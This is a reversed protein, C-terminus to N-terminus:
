ALNRDCKESLSVSLSQHAARDHINALALPEDTRLNESSLVNKQKRDTM